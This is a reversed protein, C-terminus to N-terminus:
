IEATNNIYTKLSQCEDLQVVSWLSPVLLINVQKGFLHIFINRTQMQGRKIGVQCLKTVLLCFVQTQILIARKFGIVVPILRDWRLVVAHPRNRILVRSGPLIIIQTNYKKGKM